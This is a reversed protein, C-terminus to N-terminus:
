AAGRPPLPATNADRWFETFAAQLAAAEAAGVPRHLLPLHETLWGIFAQQVVLARQVDAVTADPYSGYLFTTEIQCKGFWNVFARLSAAGPYGVCHGCIADVADGAATALLQLMTPLDGDFECVFLLYANALEDDTAPFGEVPLEDLVVWRAFHMMPLRAFPSDPGNPLAALQARLLRARSVGDVLDGRIPAIVTLGYAQGITNAM